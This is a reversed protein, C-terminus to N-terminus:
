NARTGPSGKQQPWKAEIWGLMRAMPGRLFPVDRAILVLGLPLMWIGLVPLFSLVGGILLAVAMPVRLWIREPQWLWIVYGAFKPPLRRLFQRLQRDLHSEADM